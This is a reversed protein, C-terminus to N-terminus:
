EEQDSRAWWRWSSAALVVFFAAALVAGADRHWLLVGVAGAVSMVGIGVPVWRPVARRRDPEGTRGVVDDVPGVQEPTTDVVQWRHCYPCKILWGPMQEGLRGIVM